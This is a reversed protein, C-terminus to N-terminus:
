EPKIEGSFVGSSTSEASIQEGSGISSYIPLFIFYITKANQVLITMVYKFENGYRSSRSTSGGGDSSGPGQPLTKVYQTYLELDDKLAGSTLLQYATPRRKPEVKLM